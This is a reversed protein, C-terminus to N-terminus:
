CIVDDRIFPIRDRQRVYVGSPTPAAAMSTCVVSRCTAGIEGQDKLSAGIAVTLGEDLCRGSVHSRHSLDCRGNDKNSVSGEIATALEADPGEVKM